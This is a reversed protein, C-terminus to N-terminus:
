KWCQHRTVGTSCGSLRAAGFPIRPKQEAIGSPSDFQLRQRESEMDELQISTTTRTNFGAMEGRLLPMAFFESYHLHDSDQGHDAPHVALSHVPKRSSNWVDKPPLKSVTQGGIDSCNMAPSIAHM